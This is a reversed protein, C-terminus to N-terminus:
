IVLANRSPLAPPSSMPTSTTLMGNVVSVPKLLFENAGLNVLVKLARLQQAVENVASEMVGRQEGRAIDGCTVLIPTFHISLIQSL